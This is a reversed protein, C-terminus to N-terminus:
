CDAAAEAEKEDEEEIEWKNELIALPLPLFNRTVSRRGKVYGRKFCSM